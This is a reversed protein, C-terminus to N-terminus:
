KLLAKAQEESVILHTFLGTALAGVLAKNGANLGIGILKKCRRLLALAFLAPSELVSALFGKSSAATRQEGTLAWM